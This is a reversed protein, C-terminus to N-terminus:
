LDPETDEYINVVNSTPCVTKDPGLPRDVTEKIWLGCTLTKGPENSELTWTRQSISTHYEFNM